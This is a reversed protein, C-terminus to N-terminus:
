AQPSAATLLAAVTSWSSSFWRSLKELEEELTGTKGFDACVYGLSRLGAVLTSPAVWWQQALRLLDIQEQTKVHDALHQKLMESSILPVAQRHVWIQHASGAPQTSALLWSLHTISPPWSWLFISHYTHGAQPRDYHVLLKSTANSSDTAIQPRRFGYLLATGQCSPLIQSLRDLDRWELGHPIAPAPHYILTPELRSATNPASELHSTPQPDVAAPAPNALPDTAPSPDPQEQAPQDLRGNPPDSSQQTSRVRSKRPPSVRTMPLSPQISSFPTPASDSPNEAPRIGQIELELETEGQWLRGKLTYALDIWEPIPYASGARWALATLPRSRPHDPHLDRVQIKLHSRDKGVQQQKVVQLGYSSFVPERNGIGCPQLHQLQQFLDLTLDGLHAAADIEIVPQIQHPQLCSQAYQILRQELQPWQEAALSFGGAAPHGGYKQFLDQCFELAHFVNFEPIGRASGRIKEEEQAAIFVPAGYREVLRSAVIGIVGHHWGQGLLPIIRDQKLDRGSSEVLEIAEQEIQHCLQQRQQNLHECEEARAHALDPDETTLLDIVVTPHALRGVANIRPGLGFGIAEPHLTEQQHALGTVQLLAQIGLIPSTPLLALGQKVWYRNVGTLPALDAITGLTLLELLPRQLLLRQDFRDALALGLLYAVGVGAMGRYPSDPPILKPNLIADAPPLQAPLDHHDTVIV